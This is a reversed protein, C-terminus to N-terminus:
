LDSKYLCNDIQPAFMQAVKPNLLIKAFLDTADIELIEAITQAIEIFLGLLRMDLTQRLNDANMAKFLAGKSVYHEYRFRFSLLIYALLTITTDAIQADFNSSQSGGLNLLQKTEKFFVEISWRIQYIEILKVFSLNTDTSLFVKWDGNTGQRSFFLTVPVDGMQVDARFYQLRMKRCRKVNKINFSNRIEKYTLSKGRYLFKTKVFKYMGILHVNQSRVALVLSQCTFWSDCLVYDISLSHFVAMYFMQIAMEIKSKDLEKIRKQGEADKMRKKCYQRRLEKKSMGYPKDERNGKESFLAFDLPISSKGDWYLAVLMKFGLKFSHSVHDYVKGIKEINKGTKEILTDDLILCKPKKEVDEKETIAIFKTAIYWLIRRWNITENNKLRFFVDKGIQIGQENLESLSSNVTKNGRALMWLLLSIVWQFSYGDKKFNSFESFHETLKMAKFGSLVNESNLKNENFDIEIESINKTIKDRLM